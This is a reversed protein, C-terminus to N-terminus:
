LVGAPERWQFFSSEEAVWWCWQAVVGFAGNLERWPGRELVERSHGGDSLCLVVYQANREVDGVGLVDDHVVEERLDGGVEGRWHACLEYHARRLPEVHRVMAREGRGQTGQDFVESGVAM